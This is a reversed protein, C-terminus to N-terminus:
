KIKLYNKVYSQFFWRSYLFIVQKFYRGVIHFKQDISVNPSVQPGYNRSSFMIEHFFEDYFWYMYEENWESNLISFFSNINPM